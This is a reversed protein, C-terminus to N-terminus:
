PRGKGRLILNAYPLLLPWNSTSLLLFHSILNGLNLEWRDEWLGRMQLEGKLYEHPHLLQTQPTM